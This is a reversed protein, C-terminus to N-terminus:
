GGAGSGGAGFASGVTRARKATTRQAVSGYGAGRLARMATRRDEGDLRDTFLLGNLHDTEHQLCRALMGEGEVDVPNGDLDVGTVRSHAFRKAPFGIGPVSLCGEIHDELSEGATSLEPNIVHGRRGDVQYTFVRLGVGVQPAALGAGGVDDMTEFMDAVLKALDPGFDTVPEAATRLVPDGVIRISLIAM